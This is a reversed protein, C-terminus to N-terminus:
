EGAGPPPAFMAMLEAGTIKKTENALAYGAPKEDYFVETTLTFQDPDDFTQTSVMQMGGDRMQWVLTSGCVGCFLREGWDSSVYRKVPASEDFVVSSGCEAVFFMGGSWKRCMGCHCVGAERNLPQASFGCAGCLCSGRLTDGEAM